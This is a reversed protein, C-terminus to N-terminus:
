RCPTTQTARDRGKKKGERREEERKRRKLWWERGGEIRRDDGKETRKKGSCIGRPTTQRPASEDASHHPSDM